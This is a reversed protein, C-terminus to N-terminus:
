RQALVNGLYELVTAQGQEKLFFHGGPFTRLRFEKSTFNAWQALDSRRAGEDEAGGLCVIPCALPAKELDPQYCELARDVNFHFPSLSPPSPFLADILHFRCLHCMLYSQYTKPLPENHLSFCQVPVYPHSM